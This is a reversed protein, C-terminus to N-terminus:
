SCRADTCSAIGGRTGARAIVNSACSDHCVRLQELQSLNSVQHKQEVATLVGDIENLKQV